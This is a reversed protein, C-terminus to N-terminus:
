KAGVTKKLFAEGAEGVAAGAAKISNPDSRSTQIKAGSKYNNTETSSEIGGSMWLFRMSWWEDYAVKGDAQVVPYKQGQWSCGSVFFLMASLFLVVGSILVGRKVAIKDTLKLGGQSNQSILSGDSTLIIVSM